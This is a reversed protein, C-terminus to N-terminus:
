AAIVTYLIGAIKECKENCTKLTTEYDHANWM